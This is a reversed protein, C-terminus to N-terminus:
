CAGGRLLVASGFDDAGKSCSVANARHTWGLFFCKIKVHRNSAAASVHGVISHDPTGRATNRWDITNGFESRVEHGM